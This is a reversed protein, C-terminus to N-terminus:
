FPLDDDLMVSDVPQSNQPLPISAQGSNNLDQAQQETFLVRLYSTGAKSKNIWGSIRYQKSAITASGTYDPQTPKEKKNRYLSGSNDKQEM